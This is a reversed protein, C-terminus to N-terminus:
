GVPKTIEPRRVKDVESQEQMPTSQSAVAALRARLRDIRSQSEAVQVMKELEQEERQMVVLREDLSMEAEEVVVAEEEVKRKKPGKDEEVEQEEGSSGPTDEVGLTADATAAKKQAVKPPM